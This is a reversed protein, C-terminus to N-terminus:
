GMDEEGGGPAGGPSGGFIPAIYAWRMQKGGEWRLGQVSCARREKAREEIKEEEARENDLDTRGWDMVDRRVGSLM